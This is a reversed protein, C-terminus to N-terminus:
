WMCDCEDAECHACMGPMTGDPAKWPTSPDRGDNVPCWKAGLDVLAAIRHHGERVTVGDFVPEYGQALGHTEISQRLGEYGGDERKFELIEAVTYGDDGDDSYSPSDVSEGELVRWMPVIRMSPYEATESM